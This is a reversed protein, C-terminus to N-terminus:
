GFHLTTKRDANIYRKDDYASLAIKNVCVTELQHKTSAIKVNELRVLEGTELTKKFLEHHVKSQAFKKTGKASMKEFGGAILSYLKPKIACFEEIPAGALEDKFKLVVKENSQDYLPHNKALNSLDIHAILNPNKSLDDYFNVPQVKYIFSDMDSYLLHCSTEKKMVNFHFDMMFLKFLELICAGVITPKNWMINQKKKTILSLNEDIVKITSIVGESTAKSLEDESRVFTVTVRNRLSECLKGFTSNTMLKFFDQDLKSTAEQRRQTNLEVYSSLWKSQQFKIAKHIKTVIIGQEVFFKLNRFHTVYHSKPHFTQRLKNTKTASVKLANKMQTQYESLELPDIPQKDSIIPFDSHKEDIADPYELDVEVVFGIEGNDDTQLIEDLTLETVLEFAKEAHIILLPYNFMVGGYLNNADIYIISALEKSVDYNPLSPSNASELRSSFVSAVGGCIMKETMDLLERDTM